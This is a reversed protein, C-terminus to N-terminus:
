TSSFSIAGTELVSITRQISSNNTLEIVITGYQSTEGTLREFVIDAGGGNLAISSITVRRPLAYVVNNPDSANYTDGEFFVARDAEFHVGFQQANESGLTKVKARELVSQVSEAARELNAQGVPTLFALTLLALVMGIIAISILLEVATLGQKSKM